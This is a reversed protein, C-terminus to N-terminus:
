GELLITKDTPADTKPKPLTLTICAGLGRPLAPCLTADMLWASGDSHAVQSFLPMDNNLGELAFKLQGVTEFPIVLVLEEFDTNTEDTM